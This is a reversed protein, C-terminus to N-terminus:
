NAHHGGGAQTSTDVGLSEIWNIVDAQRYRPVSGVMVPAVTLSHKLGHRLKFRQNRVWSSSMSTLQAVHADSLLQLTISENTEM